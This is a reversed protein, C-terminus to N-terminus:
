PINEGRSRPHARPWMIGSRFWRTKGAHAPILGLVQLAQLPVAHKGRTLPSSGHKILVRRRAAPNEGRSRPHAAQWVRGSDRRGTKGAHAPILRLGPRPRPHRPRKGRTLPSSGRRRASTSSAWANEGRSRPHASKHTSARPSISTKGAHAPILRVEAPGPTNLPRKGRTLPSSGGGRLRGDVNAANEGRSRPHAPPTCPWNEPATTKGAHAPILGGPKPM